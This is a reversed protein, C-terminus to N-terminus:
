TLKAMYTEQSFSKMNKIKSLGKFLKRYNDYLKSVFGEMKLLIRGFM